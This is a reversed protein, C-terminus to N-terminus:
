VCHACLAPASKEVRLGAQCPCPVPISCCVGDRADSWVTCCSAVGGARVFLGACACMNCIVRLRRGYFRFKRAKYVEVVEATVAKDLAFLQQLAMVVFSSLFFRKRGAPSAYVELLELRQKV